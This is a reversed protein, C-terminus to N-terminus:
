IAPPPICVQAFPYYNRVIASARFVAYAQDYHARSIGLPGAWCGLQQYAQVAKIMAELSEGSFQPAVNEAVARAPASHAWAKAEAFAALFPRYFPGQVFQPLCCVSSFAVEPMAAGVSAVIKGEGDLEMQQAVAGQFHGFDDTGARFAARLADGTGGNVVHVQAVKNTFLAYGLMYEPQGGLEAVITKGELEKWNFAPGGGRRLLFFGDRRNIEAIHVPPATEGKDALTWYNSVASQIVDVTGGRLGELLPTAGLWHFTADVGQKKLFGQTVTAILPAYFITPRAGTVKLPGSNQAQLPGGRLALASGAVLFGRRSSLM